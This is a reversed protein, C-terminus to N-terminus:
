RRGPDLRVVTMPKAELISEYEQLIKELGAPNQATAERYLGRLGLIRDDEAGFRQTLRDLCLFASKDDGTRLCAVLLREYDAWREPSEPTEFVSLPFPKGTSLPKGLVEPAKQSLHLASTPDADSFNELSSM